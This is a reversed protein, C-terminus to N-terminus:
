FCSEKFRRVVDNLYDQNKVTKECVSGLFAAVVRGKGQTSHPLADNMAYVGGLALKIKQGGAFIWDESDMSLPMFFIYGTGDEHPRIPSEWGYFQVEDSQHTTVINLGDIPRALINNIMGVKSGIKTQDFSDGLLALEFVPKLAGKEDLYNM